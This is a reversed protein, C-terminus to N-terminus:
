VPVGYIRDPETGDPSEGQPRDAAESRGLGDSSQGEARGAAEAEPRAQAPSGDPGKGADRVLRLPGTAPAAGSGYTHEVAPFAGSRVEATYAQAAATIRAHLTEYPKVFKPVFHPNMGLLDYCVLVQGDCQAGAGIGITPISAQRTIESALDAPIGELVLAYCGAAELAKAEDVLRQASAADRGQVKFGGLEHVRQPTLGIHGMVPIGAHVIRQVTPGYSAGGELKVAHAGGEQVLRGASALGQEPSLQYSMFPLDAVVHARKAARTVAATHYVMDELTVRLTNAHGQVVMGLSDGVLLCDIGAQDLISAFTADYATIMVVKDGRGKRQRLDLSSITKQTM